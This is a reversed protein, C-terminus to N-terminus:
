LQLTLQHGDSLPHGDGAHTRTHTHTHVDWGGARHTYVTTEGSRVAEESRQYSPLRVEPGASQFNDLVRWGVGGGGGGAGGAGGGGDQVVIGGCEEEQSSNGDVM